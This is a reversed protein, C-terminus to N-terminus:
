ILAICNMLAAETARHFADRESSADADLKFRIDDSLGAVAKHSIKARGFQSRVANDKGFILKCLVVAEDSHRQRDAIEYRWDNGFLQKLRRAVPSDPDLHISPLAAATRSPAALAQRAIPTTPGAAAGGEKPRGRVYLDDLRRKSQALLDDFLSSLGTRQESAM